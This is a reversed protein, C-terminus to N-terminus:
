ESDKDKEKEARKTAKESKEKAEKERKAVADAYEKLLTDADADEKKVIAKVVVLKDDVTRFLEGEKTRGLYEMENFQMKMSEVAEYVMERIEANRKVSM